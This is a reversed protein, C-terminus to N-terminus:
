AARHKRRLTENPAPVLEAPGAPIGALWRTIANKELNPRLAGDLGWFLGASTMALVLCGLFFLRDESGDVNPIGKALMFQLVLWMGVISGLRTLLGLTLSIGVTWEGIVVLRAFLDTNPGVVQDLFTAFFPPALPVHGDVFSSLEDGRSLWGGTTMRWVAALFYVGFGIRMLAIGTATNM